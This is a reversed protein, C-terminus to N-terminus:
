LRYHPPMRHITKINECALSAPVEGELKRCHRIPVLATASKGYYRVLLQGEKVKLVRAPLSWNNTYARGIGTRDYGAGRKVEPLITVVLDGEQYKECETLRDMGADKMAQRMARDMQTALQNMKIQEMSELRLMQWGPLAMNFGMLLYFPSELTMAHPTANHVLTAM